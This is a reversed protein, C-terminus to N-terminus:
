NRGRITKISLYEGKILLYKGGRKGIYVVRHAGKYLFRETSKKPKEKLSEAGGGVAVPDPEPNYEPIDKYEIKNPNKIADTKNIIHLGIDLITERYAQVDDVKMEAFQRNLIGMLAVLRLKNPDPNEGYEKNPKHEISENVYKQVIAAYFIKIQTETLYTMLWQKPVAEDDLVEAAVEAAVKGAATEMLQKIKKKRKPVSYLNYKTIFKQLPSGEKPPQIKKKNLIKLVRAKFLNTANVLTLPPVDHGANDGDFDEDENDNDQFYKFTYEGRKIADIRKTSIFKIITKVIKAYDKDTEPKTHLIYKLHYGTGMIYDNEADDWNKFFKAGGPYHQFEIILRNNEDNELIDMYIHDVPNGSAVLKFIAKLFDEIYRYQRTAVETSMLSPISTNRIKTCTSILETVNNFKGLVNIIIPLVDEITNENKNAMVHNLVPDNLDSLLTKPGSNCLVSLIDGETPEDGGGRKKSGKKQKSGGETNIGGAIATNYADTFQKVTPTCNM